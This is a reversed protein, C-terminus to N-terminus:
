LRAMTADEANQTKEEQITPEAEPKTSVPSTM